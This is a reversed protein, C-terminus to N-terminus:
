RHGAGEPDGDDRRLAENRGHRVQDGQALDPLAGRLRHVTEGARLPHLPGEQDLGLRDQGEDKGRDEIGQDGRDPLGPHLALLLIRLLRDEARADADLDGRARSGLAGASPRQDPLGEHVRRVQRVEPPVEGRPPGGASPHAQPRGAEPGPNDPLVPGRDGRAGDDPHAEAALPRGHRAEGAEGEGPVHDGGDPLHGRLDRLLRMGREAVERESVARGADRLTDHVARVQHVEGRRDPAQLRELPLLSGLLAGLPCVYRCWFREKWANLAVIGAFILMILFGQRFTANLM